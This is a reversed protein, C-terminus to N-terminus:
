NLVRMLIPNVRSTM